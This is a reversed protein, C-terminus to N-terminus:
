GTHGDHSCIAGYTEPRRDRWTGWSERYDRIADLDVTATLHTEDVRNAEAMM